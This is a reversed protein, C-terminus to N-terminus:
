EEAAARRRGQSLMARVSGETTDILSAIEKNSFGAGSLVRVQEGKPLNEIQRLALLRAIKRLETVLADNEM